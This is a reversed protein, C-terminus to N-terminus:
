PCGRKCEEDVSGVSFSGVAEEEKTKRQRAQGRTDRLTAHEGQAAASFFFAM